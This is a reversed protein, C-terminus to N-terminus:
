TKRHNACWDLIKTVFLRLLKGPKIPKGCESLAKNWLERTTTEAEIRMADMFSANEQMRGLELARMNMTFMVTQRGWSQLDRMAKQLEQNSMKREGKLFAIV